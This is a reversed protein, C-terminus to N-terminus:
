NEHHLLTEQESARIVREVISIVEKEPWPQHTNGLPAITKGIDVRYRYMMAQQLFTWINPLITDIVEQFVLMFSTGLQVNGNVFEKRVHQCEKGWLNYMTGIAGSTGCLVAQCMLEDAGSFLILKGKSRNFIASVELLNGTTLKMGAVNPVNLLQDVFGNIGDTFNREGLQYPFFPLDTARAIDQYHKFAMASSGGSSSYYVPGVSSVGQVGIQTAHQALRISEATTMAGVQVIIPVRGNNEAVVEEAVVRRQRESMLFGQGTSGLIYLGDLGQSILTDVLKKLEKLNPNGDSDIPTILAPWVGKFSDSAKDGERLKNIDM